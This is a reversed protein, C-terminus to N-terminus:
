SFNSPKPGEFDVRDGALRPDACSKFKGVGGWWGGWSEVKCRFYCVLMKLRWWEDLAFGFLVVLGWQESKVWIAWLVLKILRGDFGFGFLLNLGFVLKFQVLLLQLIKLHVMLSSSFAITSTSPTANDITLRRSSLWHLTKEGTNTQNTLIKLRKYFNMCMCTQIHM